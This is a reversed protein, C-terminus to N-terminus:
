HEDESGEKSDYYIVLFLLAGIGAVGLFAAIIPLLFFGALILLTLGLARLGAIYKRM